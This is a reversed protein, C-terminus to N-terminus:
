FRFFFGGVFWWGPRIVNLLITWLESSRAHVIITAIDSDCEPLFPFTRGIMNEDAILRMENHEAAM